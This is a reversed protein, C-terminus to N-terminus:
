QENTPTVEVTASDELELEVGGVWGAILNYIFCGILAGIFGLIGYGIPMMIAMGVGLGAALFASEDGSLSGAMAAILLFPIFILGFCAYIMGAVKAAPVPPIRKLTVKM